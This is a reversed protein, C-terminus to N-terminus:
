SSKVRVPFTYRIDLAQGQFHVPTYRSQELMRLIQETMGHPLGRVARCKTVSGHKTIVCSFIALGAVRAARAATTYVLPPRSLLKPPTMGPGFPLEHFRHLPAGGPGSPGRPELGPTDGKSPPAADTELESVEPAEERPPPRKQPISRKKAKRSASPPGKSPTPAPATVVSPRVFRIVPPPDPAGEAPRRALLILSFFVLVHAGLSALLSRTSFGKSGRYTPRFTRLM